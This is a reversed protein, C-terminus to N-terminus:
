ARGNVGGPSRGPTQNEGAAYASNGGKARAELADVREQLSQLEVTHLAMELIVRAATVRASESEGSTQIDCLTSVSQTAAQQIHTMVHDLAERRAARIREAILPDHAWRWGTAKGIGISAAADELTRHVLLAAIFQNVKNPRRDGHGRSKTEDSM